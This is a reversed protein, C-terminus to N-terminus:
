AARGEHQLRPLKTKMNFDAYTGADAHAPFREMYSGVGAWFTDVSVNSGTSFSFTSVTVGVKPHVRSIVSTIVGYTGLVVKVHTFKLTTNITRADNTSTLITNSLHRFSCFDGNLISRSLHHLRM